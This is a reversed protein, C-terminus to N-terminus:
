MYENKYTGCELADNLRELLDTQENNLCFRVEEAVKEKVGDDDIHGYADLIGYPDYDWMFAVLADILTDTINNEEVATIMEPITM